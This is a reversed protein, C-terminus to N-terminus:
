YSTVVFVTLRDDSSAVLWRVLIRQLTPLTDGTLKAVIHDEDADKSDSKNTTLRLTMKSFELERM